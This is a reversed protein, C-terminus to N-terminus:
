HCGFGLAADIVIQVDIVNVAGDQNLDDTASEAGLAGNIMRQVDTVNTTGQQGVDCASFTAVNISVSATATMYDVSDNPTFTVSLTQLNGIPLVTGAAPNYVFTGPVSATADLQAAGLATGPVIGSPVPWVILPMNRACSVAGSSVSTGTDGTTKNETNGAGDMAISYFAYTHGSQGAYTASGAAHPTQWVAFPAGNDSVYITYTTIGSGVDTGSWSVTFCGTSETAPLAQIASVPPTVDMTNLWTPTNIPGNADFVVTAQNTIQTGTTVTSKPLVSFIVSGQGKVGDTDPPLFGVTPDSPPLGTSPDISTFTWTLLGTDANLSGQIRVSLSSNVSLTTNFNNTGAPVNIVTAGVAITGLTVTTLDVKTPDLPDTIVVQAAPLTATPESAFAVSYTLPKPGVFRSASGDGAPGSKDNPDPDKGTGSCNSGGGGASRGNNGDCDGNSSGSSNGNSTCAGGNSGNGDGGGSSPSDDKVKWKTETTGDCYLIDAYIWTVCNITVESIITDFENCPQTNNLFLNACTTLKQLNYANGASYGPVTGGPNPPPYAVCSQSSGGLSNQLVSGLSTISSNATTAYAVPLPSPPSPLNPHVTQVASASVDLSLDGLCNTLYPKSASPICSTALGAPNSQAQTLAATADSLSDFWPPRVYTELLLGADQNPDTFQIPITFASGAPLLPVIFGLFTTASTPDILAPPNQDSANGLTPYITGLIQYSVHSPFSVWLETFYADVTGSNGYTIYFTSPINVRFFSRGTINSWVQPQGGNAVTFANKSILPGAGPNTVDVDYSGIAAGNLAFSCTISSGDSAVAVATAAITTSGQVLSCTAGSQFGAGSVTITTDGTDGASTPSVVGIAGAGLIALFVDNGDYVQDGNAFVPQFANATVPFDRSSTYGAVYVNGQPDLALAGAVDDGSGGLYTSYLVASGDSKFETIHGDYGGKETSQYANVLPFNSGGQTTGTVWVNGGSDLAIADEFSYGGNAGLYTSWLLTSGDPSLKSVFESYGDAAYTPEYSGQTTPFNSSSTTGAVYVNGQADLTIAHAYESCASGTANQGSLYSAYNLASLDASLQALYAASNQPHGGGHCGPDLAPLSAQFAHTSTPLNNTFTQGAIWPNGSADVAMAQTVNGTFSNNAAPNQAGYYTAAVLQATGRLALNFVAVFAANGSSISQLYAAGTTPLGPGATGSMVLNGQPNFAVAAGSAGGSAGFFSSYVLSSGDPSLESLFASSAGQLTSLYANSTVPFDPSKTMGTFYANGSADLVIGGSTDDTSGGVFTSYLLVGSPSMKTVVINTVVQGINKRVPQYANGSVPYDQSASFGLMYMNNQADLVIATAEDDHPGGLYTSYLLNLAPDIVLTKTRDYRGFQFGASNGGLSIFKGEIAQKGHELNQYLLPRHLVAEKGEGVQLAGQPTIRVASGDEVRLRIMGPDAGPAVVFDYELRGAEAYFLLDIGPYLNTYRLRAYTPLGSAWNKPDRGRFFSIKGPQPDLPEIAARPNAGVFSVREEFATVRVASRGITGSVPVGGRSSGGNAKAAEMLRLVFGDNHFSAEFGPGTAQWLVDAPAQGRNRVFVTPRAGAGGRLNELHRLSDAWAACGLILGILGIAVRL